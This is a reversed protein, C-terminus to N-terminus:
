TYKLQQVIRRVLCGGVLTYNNQDTQYLSGPFACPNMVLDISFDSVIPPLYHFPQLARKKAPRSQRDPADDWAAGHAM